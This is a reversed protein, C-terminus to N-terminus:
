KSLWVMYKEFVPVKHKVTETDRMTELVTSLSLDYVKMLEANVRESIRLKM